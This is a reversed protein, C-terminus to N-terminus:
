QRRDYPIALSMIERVVDGELQKLEESRPFKKTGRRVKALIGRLYIVKENDRSIGRRAWALGQSGLVHYPHQDNARDVAILGELIGNAEVVYSQSEPAGPRNIAKRLLLYAWENEVYPDDPALSRAQNLFNEALNLDGGEVELSGRHLWYHSDWNLSAEFDAYLERAQETDLMRFMLDHNIFARIIRHPRSSRHGGPDVESVGILLLGYLIEYVAGRQQLAETLIRAIVRHRARLLGGKPQVVLHLRLLSEIVNLARNTRDGVAVVIESKSLGFRHTAAVSILGYVFQSDSDLDFLEETIKEEFKRGTTAQYM